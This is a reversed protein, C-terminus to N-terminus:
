KFGKVIEGIILGWGDVLIFLLIKFPLSITAPPLMMMGMAMLVSAVVMDIVIFPIYIIFGIMFGKKLESTIFSPIVVSMPIDAETLVPEMGSMGAFLATDQDYTQRQMFEKIPLTARTLAVDQAIIGDRYPQWADTNIQTFVPMMIFLTMFLALGVLIQNPPTQQTGLASRLFYFIIIIRTFSTMMILISPALAVITLAFLIQLSSTVDTPSAASDITLNVRPVTAFVKGTVFLSIVLLMILMMRKIKLKKKSM